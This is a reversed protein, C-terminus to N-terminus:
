RNKHPAGSTHSKRWYGPQTTVSYICEALQLAKPFSHADTTLRSLCLHRTGQDPSFLGNLLYFSTESFVSHFKQLFGEVGDFCVFDPWLGPFEIEIDNNQAVVLQKQKELYPFLNIILIRLDDIGIACIPENKGLECLENAYNPFEAADRSQLGNLESWSIVSPLAGSLLLVQIFEGSTDASFRSVGIAASVIPEVNELGLIADPFLDYLSPVLLEEPIKGVVSWFAEVWIGGACVMERLLELASERILWEDDGALMLVIYEMVGRANVWSDFKGRLEKFLESCNRNKSRVEELRSRALIYEMFEEYVFFVRRVTVDGTPQEEFIIDEDLVRLYLSSETSIDSEETVEALKDTKIDTTCQSYMFDALRMLFQSISHENVHGLRKRILELKRTWYLTFLQWLRIDHIPPLFVLKGEPDGYAECFFRLLLPHRCAVLAAEDMTCDIKYHELYLPLAREFEEDSFDHLEGRMISFVQDVWSASDFFSLYIDRCSITVRIRHKSSWTIFELLAVDLEPICRNENIADIFVHLFSGRAKLTSDLVSLPDDIDEDFCDQVLNEIIGILMGKQHIQDRGFFLLTPFDRSLNSAVECLLSTKGGGARDVIVTIPKTARSLKDALDDLLNEVRSLGEKLAKWTENRVSKLLKTLSSALERKRRQKQRRLSACLDALRDLIQDIDRDRDASVTAMSKCLAVLQKVIHQLNNHLSAQDMLNSNPLQSSLEKASALVGTTKDLLQKLKSIVKSLHRVEQSANLGDTKSKVFSYLQELSLLTKPIVEQHIHTTSAITDNALLRLKNALLPELSHFARIEDELKRSVYLRPIYKGKAFTDINHNVLNRCKAIFSHDWQSSAISYKLYSPLDLAEIIAPPLRSILHPAHDMILANLQSRWVVDTYFDCHKHKSFESIYDSLSNTGRATTVLIWTDIPRNAFRAIEHRIDAPKVNKSRKCQFVFKRRISPFLDAPSPLIGIVDEGKDGTAGRLKVEEFGLAKVLHFVFVEFQGPTLAEWNPEVIKTKGAHQKDTKRRM